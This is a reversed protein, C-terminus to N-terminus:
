RTVEHSPVHLTGQHEPNQVKTNDLAHQQVGHKVGNKLAIGAIAGGITMGVAFTLVSDAHQSIKELFSM